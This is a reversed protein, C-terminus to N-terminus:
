SFQRWFELNWYLQKLYNLHSAAFNSVLYNTTQSNLGPETLPSSHVCLKINIIKPTTSKVIATNSM